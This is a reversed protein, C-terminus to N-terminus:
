RSLRGACAFLTRPKTGFCGRGREESGLHKAPIVKLGKQFEWFGAATCHYRHMDIYGLKRCRRSYSHSAAPLPGLRQSGSYCRTSRQRRRVRRCTLWVLPFRCRWCEQFCTCRMRQRCGGSSRRIASGRAARIRPRGVTPAERTPHARSM